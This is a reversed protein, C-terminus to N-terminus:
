DVKPPATPTEPASPPNEGEWRTRAIGAFTEGAAHMLKALAEREVRRRCQDTADGSTWTNAPQTDRASAEATGFVFGTRVDIFALSAVSHVVATRTPALGLTVLGLAGPSWDDVRLATDITYLALIDAHLSAAGERLALLSDHPADSRTTPVLIASLRVLARLGTWGALEQADAPEELDDAAVISIGGRAVGATSYSWYDRSQVRVLAVTAPFSAEPRTALREAISPATMEGIPAPGGPTRYTAQCGFALLVAAALAALRLLVIASDRLTTASAPAPAVCPCARAVVRHRPRHPRHPRFHDTLASLRAAPRRAAHRAAHPM